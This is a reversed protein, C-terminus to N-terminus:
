LIPGTCIIFEGNAELRILYTKSIFYDTTDDNHM